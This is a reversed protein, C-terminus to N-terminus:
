EFMPKNRKMIAAMILSCIFGSFVIGFITMLFGLSSNFMTEAQSLSQEILEPSMGMNEYQQEVMQLQKSIITTDIYNKYVFDYVSYIVASCLFALVGLGLGEGFKMFGGNLTRFENMAFYLVGFYMLFSVVYGYWSPNFINLVYYVTTVAISVLGLILGWKLSIRASSVKEM